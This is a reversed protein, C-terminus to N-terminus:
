SVGSAYRQDPGAGSLGLAERLAAGDRILPVARSQKGEIFVTYEGLLGGRWEVRVPRGDLRGEVAQRAGYRPEVLPLGLRQAEDIADAVTEALYAQWLRNIVYTGWVAAIAVILGALAGNLVTADM